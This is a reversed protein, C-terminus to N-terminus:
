IAIPPHTAEWSPSLIILLAGATSITKPGCVRCLNGSNYLSFSLVLIFWTSIDKGFNSFNSWKGTWPVPSGDANTDIISPQLLYQEKQTTGLVLHCSTELVISSINFSTEANASLPVLSICRSPCFTFLKLPVYM